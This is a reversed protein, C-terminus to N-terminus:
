AHAAETTSRRRLEEFFGRIEKWVDAGGSLGRWHARILGTLRFCEDIPALFYEGAPRNALVVEVDPQMTRIVPSRAAIENWADLSLTSEVPGAPSPYTALVRGGDGNKSFFAMGIPIALDDWEEDTISFSTLRVVRKPVRKYAARGDAPFLYACALCSCLLKRRRPDLLHEHVARIPQGCLECREAASDARRTLGRLREFASTHMARPTM